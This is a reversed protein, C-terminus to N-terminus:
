AHGRSRRNNGTITRGKELRLHQVDVPLDGPQLPEAWNYDRLFPFLRVSKRELGNEEDPFRKQM